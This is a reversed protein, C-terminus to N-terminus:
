DARNLKEMENIVKLGVCGCGQKFPCLLQMFTFYCLLEDGIQRLCPITVKQIIREISHLDAKIPVIQQM